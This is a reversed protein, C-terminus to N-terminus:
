QFVLISKFAHYLHIIHIEINKFLELMLFVQIQFSYNHVNEFKIHSIALLLM